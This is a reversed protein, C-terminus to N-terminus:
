ERNYSIVKKIDRHPVSYRLNEVPNYVYYYTGSFLNSHSISLIEVQENHVWVKTGDPLLTDENQGYRVQRSSQEQAMIDFGTDEHVRKCAKMISQKASLGANDMFTNHYAHNNYDFFEDLNVSVIWNGKSRCLIITTHPKVIEYYKGWADIKRNM